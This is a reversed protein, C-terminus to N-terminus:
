QLQTQFSLLYVLSCVSFALTIKQIFHPYRLFAFTRSDSLLLHFLLVFNTRAVICLPAHDNIHTTSVAMSRKERYISDARSKETINLMERCVRQVGEADHHCTPLSADNVSLRNNWQVWGRWDGVKREVFSFLKLERWTCKFDWKSM